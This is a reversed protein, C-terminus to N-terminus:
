KLLGLQKEVLPLFQSPIRDLAQSL